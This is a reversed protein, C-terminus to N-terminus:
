HSATPMALTHPSVTSKTKSGSGREATGIRKSAHAMILTKESKAWNLRLGASMMSALLLLKKATKHSVISPLPNQVVLVGRDLRTVLKRVVHVGLPAHASGLTLASSVQLIAIAGASYPRRTGSTPRAQGCATVRRDSV